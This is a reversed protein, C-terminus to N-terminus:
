LRRGVVVASGARKEYGYVYPLSGKSERSAYLDIFAKAASDHAWISQPATYHGYLTLAYNKVLLDVPFGTEDQVVFPAAPTTLMGALVAFGKRQLLHSASKLFLVDSHNHQLFQSGGVDARLGRNSLDIVLYDITVPHGDRRRVEFRVGRPTQGVHSSWPEASGSDSIGLSTTSLVTGGAFAISYRLLQLFRPKVGGMGNLDHTRYYGLQAFFSLMKCERDVAGPVAADPQGIDGYEPSQDAVLTIHPAQPFLSLATVIDPGSFLYLVPRGQLDALNARSWDNMPVSFRKEYRSQLSGFSSCHVADTATSSPTTPTVPDARTCMSMAVAFVTIWLRSVNFLM